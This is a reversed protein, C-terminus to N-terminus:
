WKLGEFEGFQIKQNQLLYILWAFKWHTEMLLDIFTVCAM